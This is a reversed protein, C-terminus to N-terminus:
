QKFLTLVVIERCLWNLKFLKEFKLKEIERINICTKMNSITIFKGRLGAIPNENLVTIKLRLMKHHQFEEPLKQEEKAGELAM